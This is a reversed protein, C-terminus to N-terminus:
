LTLRRDADRSANVPRVYIAASGAVPCKNSCIGCGTCRTPDVRPRHLLITKGQRTTAEVPELYIAKPSVPCVEECVICPRNMAWPLCRGRDVFATGVRIPGAEAFEGRGHKEDLALPRIAATPCVEGCTTCNHECYGLKFNMVPTWLGELDTQLLAPQIVNTPCARGCQQCKICAALFDKEPLAGPPRVPRSGDTGLAASAMKGFPWAFFGALAAVILGRRDLDPEVREQAHSGDGAVFGIAESPCADSCNFCVMCEATRLQQAPEAAGPCVADCLGCDTCAELNRRFRLLNWRSMLGLMAGLPCLARCFFRPVWLNALLLVAFVGGLLWAGVTVHQQSFWTFDKAAEGFLAIGAADDAPLLTATVSRTMLAIPDALGAQQVGFVTALLMAALIYYKLAFIKRYRNAEIKRRPWRGLQGLYGVFHHLTGFPCVWGCFVRGLLITAIVVILCMALPRHMAAGSSTLYWGGALMALIAGAWRRRRTRGAALVLAIVLAAVFAMRAWAAAQSSSLVTSVALLPDAWAFLSVPWGNVRLQTALWLLTFFLVLFFVQWVIRVKRIM